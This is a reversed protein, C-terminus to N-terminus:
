APLDNPWSESCVAQDHKECSTNLYVSQPPADQSFDYFSGALAFYTDGNEKWLKTVISTELNAFNMLSVIVDREDKNKGATHTARIEFTLEPGELKYIALGRSVRKAWLPNSSFEILVTKSANVPIVEPFEFKNMQVNNQGLLKFDYPTRNYITFSTKPACSVLAFLSILFLTTLVQSHM